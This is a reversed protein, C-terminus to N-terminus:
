VILEYKVSFLSVIAMLLAVYLILQLKNQSNHPIYVYVAPFFPYEQNRLNTTCIIVMLIQLILYWITLLVKCKRDEVIAQITEFYPLTDATQITPTKVSGRFETL